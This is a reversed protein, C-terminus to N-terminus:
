PKAEETATVEAADVNNGRHQKEEAQVDNEVRLKDEVEGFHVGLKDTPREAPMAWLRRRDVLNRFSGYILGASVVIAAFEVAEVTYSERGAREAPSAMVLVGVLLLLGHVFLKIAEDRRNGAAKMRRAGNRGIIRVAEFDMHSEAATISALILGFLNTTAMVGELLTLSGWSLLDSM